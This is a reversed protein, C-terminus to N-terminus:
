ADMAALQAELQALRAASDQKAKEFRKRLAPNPQTNWKQFCEDTVV